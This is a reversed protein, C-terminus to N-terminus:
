ETLGLEKLQKELDEASTVVLYPVGIHEMRQKFKDQASSLRGKGDRRKCEIEVPQPHMPGYGPLDQHAVRCIIDAAGILGFRMFDGGAFTIAGTNRREIHVVRPHKSLWQLCERLVGSELDKKPTKHRRKKDPGTLGREDEVTQFLDEQLTM